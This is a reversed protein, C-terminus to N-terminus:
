IADNRPRVQRETEQEELERKKLPFPFENSGGAEPVHTAMHPYYAECFDRSAEALAVERAWATCKSSVTAIFDPNSSRTQAKLVFRIALHKNRQRELCIRHELGRSSESEDPTDRLKRCLTRAQCKFYDLDKQQYWIDGREEKSMCSGPTILSVVRAEHFQVCRRSKFALTNPKLQKPPEVLLGLPLKCDTRPISLLTAEPATNWM